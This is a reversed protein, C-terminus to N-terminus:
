SGVQDATHTKKRGSEKVTICFMIADESFLLFAILDLDVTMGFATTIM